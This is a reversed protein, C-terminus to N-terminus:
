RGTLSSFSIHIPFAVSKSNGRRWRLSSCYIRFYNEHILYLMMARLKILFIRVVLYPRDQPIHGLVLARRIEPWKTHGTISLYFDPHGIMNSTAIIDYMQQRM